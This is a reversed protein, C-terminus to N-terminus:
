VRININRDYASTNDSERDRRFEARQTLADTDEFAM